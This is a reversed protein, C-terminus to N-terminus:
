QTTTTETETAPASAEDVPGFMGLIVYGIALLVISTILIKLVRKGKRGGKIREEQDLHTM